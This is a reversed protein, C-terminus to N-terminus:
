LIACSEILIRPRGTSDWCSTIQLSEMIGLINVPSILYPFPDALIENRPGSLRTTSCHPRTKGLIETLFLATFSGVIIIDCGAVHSM